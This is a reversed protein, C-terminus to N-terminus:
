ESLRSKYMKAFDLHTFEHGNWFPYVEEGYEILKTYEKIDFISYENNIEPLEAATAPSKFMKYDDIDPLYTIFPYNRGNLILAEGKEKSLHQLESISILSRRIGGAEYYNGCLNSIEELLRLEKSTLFVWNECNGKITEADDKYKAILQHVNQAVLFFRMNRSRAASIMSSMSPIAPMNSFEDLIFNLRVPLAGNPESQAVSIMSEYLQKIFTAALFHLQTKEDPVILYVATKERGIDEMNFSSRALMKTLSPQTNFIRLMSYLTIQISRLTKPAATFVNRYNVGAISTTNMFATFERMFSLNESSSLASLSAINIEDDEACEMLLILNALALSRSTELWFPDLTGGSIQTIIIEVFDNLLAIARNEDGARYFRLPETLPNWSDGHSTDRFNLVVTKYGNERAKDYTKAFIEGKPDTVVFSEGARLLMNITPMCILRTKKSGTAGFILTHNDLGDVWAENKNAILPLGATKYVPDNLNIRTANRKIEAEGAWRTERAPALHSNYKYSEKSM